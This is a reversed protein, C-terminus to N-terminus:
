AARNQLQTTEKEPAFLSGIHRLLDDPTRSGEKRRDKWM